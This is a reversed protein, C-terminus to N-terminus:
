GRYLGRAAIFSAVSDPLLYRVPLGDRVRGRVLTSSIALPPMAVADVGEPPPPAGPKPAIALRALERIREPEKWNPLDALADSGLLLVIDAHGAARLESLTDVTYSPGARLVERADVVFAPNGRVALRVMELRLPAPTVALGHKRWPDGAVVFSVHSAEFQQRACEAFLLHGFHPPDFTGGFVLLTM